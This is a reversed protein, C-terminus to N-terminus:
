GTKFEDFLVKKALFFFFFFCDAHDNYQENLRTSLALSHGGIVAM